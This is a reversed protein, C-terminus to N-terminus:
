FELTATMPPPILPSSVASTSVCPFLLTITTSIAGMTPFMTEPVLVRAPLREGVIFLNHSPEKSLPGASGDRLLQFIDWLTVGEWRLLLPCQLPQFVVSPLGEGILIM